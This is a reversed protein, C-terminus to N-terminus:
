ICSPAVTWGALQGRQITAGLTRDTDTIIGYLHILSHEMAAGKTEEKASTYCPDM